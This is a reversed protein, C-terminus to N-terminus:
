YFTRVGKGQQMGVAGYNPVRWACSGCSFSIRGYFIECPVNTEFIAGYFIAYAYSTSCYAYADRRSAYVYYAHADYVDHVNQYYSQSV